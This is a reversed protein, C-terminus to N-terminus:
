RHRATRRVERRAGRAAEARAGPERAGSARGGRRGAGSHKPGSSQARDEGRDRRDEENRGGAAAAGRGAPFAPFCASAARLEEPFRRPLLRRARGGLGRSAGLLEGAPLGQLRAAGCRLAHHHSLFPSVHEFRKATPIFEGSRAQADQAEAAKTAVKGRHPQGPHAALDDSRLHGSTPLFGPAEGSMNPM